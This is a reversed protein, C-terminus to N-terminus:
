HVTGICFIVIDRISVLSHIESKRRIGPTTRVKTMQTMRAKGGKWRVLAAAAVPAPAPVVHELSLSITLFLHSKICADFDTGM